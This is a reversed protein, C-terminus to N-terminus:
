NISVIPTNNFFSFMNKEQPFLVSYDVSSFDIRKLYKERPMAFRIASLVIMKELKFEISRKVTYIDKNLTIKIPLDINPVDEAPDVKSMALVEYNILNGLSKHGSGQATVVM